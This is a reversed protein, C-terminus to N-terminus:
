GLAQAERSQIQERMGDCSHVWGWNDCSVSDGAKGFTGDAQSVTTWEPHVSFTKQPM